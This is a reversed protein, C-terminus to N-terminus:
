IGTVLKLYSSAIDTAARRVLDFTMSIGSEKFSEKTRSWVTDNRIANVFEHGDWTLRQAIFNYPGPGLTKAMQGHVLGAGILIEVHYSYEYAQESPFDTLQVYGKEPPM